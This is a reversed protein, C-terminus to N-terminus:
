LDISQHVWHYYLYQSYKNTYEHVLKPIASLYAKKPVIRLDQVEFEVEQKIGFTIFDEVKEKINIQVCITKKVEKKLEFVVLGIGDVEKKVEIAVLDLYLKKNIGGHLRELFSQFEQLSSTILDLL